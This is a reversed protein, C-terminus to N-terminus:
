VRDAIIVTESLTFYAKGSQRRARMWPRLETPVNELMDLLTKKDSDNVRQRDAWPEFEFEKTLIKSERIQFGAGDFMAELERMSYVRHHSPDRITEFRNYFEAAESNETTINDTFGIVGGSKLVRAFEALMEQTLDSAIVKAVMPAFALATHGAGTAVDLMQWTSIPEVLDLLVDLSEGRAHVDSTAYDTASRGFQRKVRDKQNDTNM